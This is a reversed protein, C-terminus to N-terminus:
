ALTHPQQIAALVRALGYRGGPPSDMWVLRSAMAFRSMIRADGAIQAKGGRGRPQPKFKNGGIIRTHVGCM